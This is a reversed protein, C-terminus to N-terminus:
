SETVFGHDLKDAGFGSGGFTASQVFAMNVPAVSSEWNYAANARMDDDSGAWRFNMGAGVRALRDIGPGHEVEYLSADADRWAGGFPNRFGYAFIYDTATIGDSANYFPNDAPASGDLNMRLIKGRFSHLDTALETHFGDGVHVYLKGDAGISVNSIQHSPGIEEGPMDLVTTFTSATRGGDISHLRIVKPDHEHNS